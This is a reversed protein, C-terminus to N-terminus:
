QCIGNVCSQSAACTTGCSGCNIRDVLLQSSTVECGTAFTGDCDFYGPACQYIYCAGAGCLATKIGTYQQAQLTCNNNLCAGCHETSENTNTECGTSPDGDCDDFPLTCQAISCEFESCNSTAHQLACPACGIRGCGYKALGKSVCEGYCAKTKDPCGDNLAGTDMALSCSPAVVLMLVLGKVFLAM